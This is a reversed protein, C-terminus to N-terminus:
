ASKKRRRRVGTLGLAGLGFIALTTPEPVPQHVAFDLGIRDSGLGTDIVISNFGATDVVGWFQVNGNNNSPPVSDIVYNVFSGTDSTATLSHPTGLDGWDSIDVGFATTATDFTITFTRNSATQDTVARLGESVLSGITTSLVGATGVKIKFGNFQVENAAAFPTEFREETLTGTAADFAARNGFFIPGAEAVGAGLSCLAAAALAFFVRLKM